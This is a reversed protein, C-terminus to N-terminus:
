CIAQDPSRANASRRSLSGNGYRIRSARYSFPALGPDNDALRHQNGHGDIAFAAALHQRHLEGVLEVVLLAVGTMNGGPRALSAVFGRAVPDGGSTFIIPITLTAGKAAAAVTDGGSTAIVDVRSHVLDAVLDPLRDYRGEASRYEIAVGEGEVYGTEGLGQRFAAVFPAFPGPSAGSLFGIVPITKQQARLARPATTAGALLFMFRRRGIRRVRHGLPQATKWNTMQGPGGGLHTNKIQDYWLAPYRRPRRKEVTWRPRGNSHRAAPLPTRPGAGSKAMVRKPADGFSRRASDDKADVIVAFSAIKSRAARYLADALLFRGYNTLSM